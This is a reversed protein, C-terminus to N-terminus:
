KTGLDAGLDKIINSTKISSILSTMRGKVKINRSFALRIAPCRITIIILLANNGTIILVIGIEIANNKILM